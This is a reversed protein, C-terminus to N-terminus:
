EGGLAIFLGASLEGQLIASGASVGTSCGGTGCWFGLGAFYVPMMMSGSIRIGVKESLNAKFGGGMTIAFRWLEDYSNTQPSYIATGMTFKGFPRVPGDKLEKLVGIQIYETNLDFREVYDFIAGYETITAVSSQHMWHIELQTGPAVTYNLGVKFNDNDDINLKGNYTRLYGGFMYGYTGYIELGGESSQAKGPLALFVLMISLVAFRVWNSGKISSQGLSFNSSNFITM